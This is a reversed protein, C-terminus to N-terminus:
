KWTGIAFLDASTSDNADFLGATWFVCRVSNETRGTAKTAVDGVHDIKSNVWDDGIPDNLKDWGPFVTEEPMFNVAYTVDKFPINFHWVTDLHWYDTRGTGWHKGVRMAADVKVAILTGDPYM